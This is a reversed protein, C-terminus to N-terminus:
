GGIEITRKEGAKVEITSQLPREPTESTVIYRGPALLATPQPQSTRLVTHQKSDKIEWFADGIGAGEQDARKLTVHGAELKLAVKQTKGPSLTVDTAAKVNTAGLTAEIRYRGASLDLKPMRAATRAVEHPEGDLQIVSFAIPLSQPAPAGDLTASLDLQALALPLTRKVVDGAGIAIQERAEAGSSRATVYYTRAPLTFTPAPAASRTVERRGLPADPDDEYIIYTVGDSMPEGQGAAKGRTATLELQGTALTADFTTGTAPSITVTGEQRALGNEATVKYAGAPLVIEPQTERGIWIPTASASDAPTVTFTAAPLLAAGKAPRALLKLVGANLNVRLPTPGEAKVDVTKHVDALGLRADVEYTGPPLKEVLKAARVDKIVERDPGAKSIRWRLPSELTASDSGLGASLYLGPAADAAPEDKPTEAELPETATEADLHALKIIRDLATTLGAADHADFLKGGTLRPLCSMLQLRTRDLGLGIEHVTLNPNSQAIQAALACVDQGCNDVDDNILVITAPAASGIANAAERLGLVLPGKGTANLKDLPAIIKQAADAQPPVLVEADSCNGRRRHGFAALGARVDPRLRPLVERLADRTFEYKSRKEYGVRGWMSGSSDLLFMVTPSKDAARAPWLSALPALLLLSLASAILRHPMRNGTDNAELL